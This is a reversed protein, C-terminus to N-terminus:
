PTAGSLPGPRVEVSDRDLAALRSVKGLARRLSAGDHVRALAQFEAARAGFAEARCDAFCGVTVREHYTCGAGAAHVVTLEVLLGDGDFRWQVVADAIGAIVGGCADCRTPRTM